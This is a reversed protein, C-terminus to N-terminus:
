RLVARTQRAVELDERAAVVLMRVPADAPAVDVDPRASANLGADVAVGLYGLRAALAARVDPANEGVGGTLVLADLGGTAATMAAVERALRHVYVEVALTAAADGADRRALVDRLDGSTGSLGALGSRRELAEEVEDLAHGGHRLLWLLMGPDVSGSRTAMVLGE